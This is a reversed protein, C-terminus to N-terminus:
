EAEALKILLAEREDISRTLKFAPFDVPRNVAEQYQIAKLPSQFQLQM